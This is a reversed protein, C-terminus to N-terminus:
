FSRFSHSGVFVEEIFIESNKRIRVSTKKGWSLTLSFVTLIFTVPHDVGSHFSRGTIGAREGNGGDLWEFM